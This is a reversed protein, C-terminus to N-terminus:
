FGSVRIPYPADLKVPEAGEVRQIERYAAGDLAHVALAAGPEIRWYGPIGAAAYVAPKLLRDYRRTEPSEVEVVLAVDAPDVWIAGSSRPRLVTVDPVLSSAGIEVGLRACVWWDPPAAARLALVVADVVADHAPDLPPPTVHLSGDVIEYRHGDQPFLHLDPETWRGDPATWRMPSGQSLMTM